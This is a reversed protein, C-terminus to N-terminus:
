NVQFFQDAREQPDSQMLVMCNSREPDKLIRVLAIDERFSALFELIEVPSMHSPVTVVCVLTSRESPLQQSGGASASASYSKDAQYFRLKGTTVRVQPNGALFPAGQMEQVDELTEEEKAEEEEAMDAAEVRIQFM